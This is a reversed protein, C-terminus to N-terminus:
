SLAKNYSEMTKLAAKEWSFKKLQKKGAARVKEAFDTDYIVKEMAAIISDIRYPDFYVGANGAIEPFCSVNSLCVPCDNMFAELIPMGFGEYFSPYIFLVANAYLHNLDKDDVRIARTQQEINLNKMLELEKKNFFSGVCIFQLGKEKEMIRSVAQACNSFNKYIDRNGVFLIYDGMHNVKEEDFIKNYGHHIVDIKDVDINMIEIIDNKTNESIAIIRSANKIVNEMQSRIDKNNYTPDIDFKYAILDHVTIIYPRKTIKLFYDDYFTPHFLDYNGVNLGIKSYIQNFEYARKSLFNKGRFNRDPFVNKKNFLKSHKQLYYNDSFLLGLNVDHKPAIHRIIECFYRSIGGYKQLSFMQHDYFIKM